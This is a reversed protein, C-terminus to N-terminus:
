KTTSTHSLKSAEKFFDWIVEPADFEHSTTGLIRPWRSVTHPITHGGGSVSILKVPKKGLESWSTSAISTGDDPDRDPWVVSQGEKVHGAIKAWYAASENSSMVAGRSTDGLIEVIGGEYPNIPDDTGNIILMAVPKKKRQCDLNEEVPLNAVIAAIATVLDPAEFGVRYAMHGGNSMGAVFVNTRDIACMKEM